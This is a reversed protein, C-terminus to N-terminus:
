NTGDKLFANGSKLITIPINRENNATTINNSIVKTKKNFNNKNYKSFSKSKSCHLDNGVNTYFEILIQIFNCVRQFIKSYNLM